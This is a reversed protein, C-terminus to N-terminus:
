RTRGKAAAKEFRLLFASFPVGLAKCWSRLEVVDLRREGRECKSVLSQTTKLNAALEGQTLEARKRASRLEDLLVAYDNSFLSKEMVFGGLIFDSESYDL